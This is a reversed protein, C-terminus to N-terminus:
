EGFIIIKCQEVTEPSLYLEALDPNKALGCLDNVLRKQTYYNQLFEVDQEQLKRFPRLEAILAINSNTSASLKNNLDENEGVMRSKEAELGKITSFLEDIRNELSAVYRASPQDGNKPPSHEISQKLNYAFFATTPITLLATLFVTKLTGLKSSRQRNEINSSYESNERRRKGREDFDGDRWNSNSM